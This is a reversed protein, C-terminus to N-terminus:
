YLEYITKTSLSYNSFEEALGSYYLLKSLAIDFSYMVELREIKVKAVALSADSVDTTTAMGEKFSKERVRYYETAFELASELEKLQELNMNMEQYYKTIATKIDSETKQYFTEVQDQQIKSAKLKNIREAGTFLDWKMGVGVMYDPIYPSLDKNYLEYTGMAAINPLFGAKEAKYGQYALEKKKEINKLLPSNNEANSWFFDISEIENIYFLDSVPAISIEENLALTNLLADNVIDVQRIVKKLERDAESFYVKAHLYEAKAIIGQNMMKEADSLHVQMTQLVEERIKQAHLSLVLGYYREILECTLENSKQINEIDAAEVKIEAAKNAIRIKGGTYLPLTFGANVVGFQKKQIVQNWESSNITNLGELLQQRVVTTSIEDPLIPMVGSTNPDPNPVGSFVGYNGLASYLPTIADKVPNLDLTIDDSMYVYSADISIQPLYMGMTAKREQEKQMTNEKAQKLILSNQKTLMLAEEFTIRKSDRIVAQGIVAKSIFVLFCLKAAFVVKEM